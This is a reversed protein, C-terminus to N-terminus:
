EGNHQESVRETPRDKIYFLIFYRIKGVGKIVHTQHDTQLVSQVTQNPGNTTQRSYDCVYVLAGIYITRTDNDYDYVCWVRVIKYTINYSIGARAPFLADEDYRHYLM